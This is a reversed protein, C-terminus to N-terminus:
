IVREKKLKSYIELDIFKKDSSIEGAIEIGEFSFNLRKPINKSSINEVGCKIQIRNIALEDFAFDILMKLSQTVIGKKQYFESIWYGVEAKKNAKDIDKLSILGVFQQNYHIVFVFNNNPKKYVSKIFNETDKLQKTGDVFPLWKRLYTREANITTFVDKADSIEIQKLIIENNVVLTKM